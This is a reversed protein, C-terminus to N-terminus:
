RLFDVIRSGDRAAANYGSLTSVWEYVMGSKKIAHTLYLRWPLVMPDNDTTDILLVTCRPLIPLTPTALATCPARSVATCRCRLSQWLQRLRSASRHHEAVTPLTCADTCPVDAADHPGLFVVYRAPRMCPRLTVALSLFMRAGAIIATDYGTSSSFHLVADLNQALCGNICQVTRLEAEDVNLENLAWRIHKRLKHADTDRADREPLVTLIM